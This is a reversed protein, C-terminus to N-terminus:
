QPDIMQLQRNALVADVTPQRIDMAMHDVLDNTLPTKSPNDHAFIRPGGGPKVGTPGHIASVFAPEEGSPERREAKLEVGNPM